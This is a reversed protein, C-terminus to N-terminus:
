SDKKVNLRGKVYEFGSINFFVAAAHDEEDDGNFWQILHRLASARFREAEEQTAAKEWNRAGYKVAGRNMLEAWRTIMPWYCLDYRPKDTQIDRVMGTSFEQRQGSDKTVFEM